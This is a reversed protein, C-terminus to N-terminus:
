SIKYEVGVGTPESANNKVSLGTNVEYYSSAPDGMDVYELKGNITAGDEVVNGSEDVFHLTNDTQASAASGVFVATIFLLLTKKM